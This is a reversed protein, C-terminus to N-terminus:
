NPPSLAWDRGLISKSESKGVVRFIGVDVMGGDEWGHRCHRGFSAGKFRAGDAAVKEASTLKTTVMGVISTFELLLEGHQVVLVIRNKM